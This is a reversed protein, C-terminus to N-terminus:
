DAGCRQVAVRRVRISLQAGPVTIHSAQSYNPSPARNAVLGFEKFPGWAAASCKLKSRHMLGTTPVLRVRRLLGRM